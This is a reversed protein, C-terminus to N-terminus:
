RCPSASVFSQELLIRWNRVPQCTSRPLLWLVTTHAHKHQLMKFRTKLLGHLAAPHFILKLFKTAITQWSGARSDSDITSISQFTYVYSRRLLCSPTLCSCCGRTASSPRAECTQQLVECFHSCSMRQRFIDWGPQNVNIWTNISSQQIKKFVWIWLISLKWSSHMDMTDYTSSCFSVRQKISWKRPIQVNALQEKIRSERTEERKHNL